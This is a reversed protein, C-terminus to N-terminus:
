KSKKGGGKKRGGSDKKKPAYKEALHDLFSGIQDARAEQRSRILAKLDNQTDLGMEDRMREAEEAEKQWKRKRRERKRPTENVFASYEPVENNKIMKLILERLRGEEETNSFPVAELIFDMDGKGDLYARKLDDKEEQSGKYSKEYNTIDEVTIKKFLLRWYETWDRDAAEDDEDYVGTEDYIARKEKDSLISHVKGLVKFKETAEAKKHEEVRDPHVLLSLRHYAKRVQKEDADKPIRLVDYLNRHGFYKDCLDQLSSM